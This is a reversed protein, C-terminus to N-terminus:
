FHHCIAMMLSTATGHLILLLLLLPLFLKRITQSKAASLGGLAHPNPKDVQVTAPNGAAQPRVKEIKRVQNPGYVFAETRCDWVNPVKSVQHVLLDFGPVPDVGRVLRAVRFARAGKIVEFGEARWEARSKAEPSVVYHPRIM